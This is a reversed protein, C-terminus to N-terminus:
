QAIHTYGPLCHVVAVRAQMYIGYAHMHTALRATCLRWVPRCTHATHMCILLWGPLECSGWPDARVIDTKRFQDSQICPSCPSCVHTTTHIGHIAHNRSQICPSCAIRLLAHTQISAMSQMCTHNCICPSCAHTTTHMSQMHTHTAAHMSQMRTHSYAHVAHMHPQTCAMSQMCTHNYAHWPSCAHTATHMGHVAHMHPQICAMSQMRTCYHMHTQISAMSQMCTHSYAHRCAHTTTHMDAHSTHSYAHVAHVTTCTHNYAHVAHMHPQICPSCAHATTCTHKYAHVAHTHPQAHVAHMHLLAHTNTHMSQMCIHSNCPSYAHATTCTHKYAHVAHTQPQICPSCAHTATHMSQMCTHSYAHVAHATAPCAASGRSSIGAEEGQGQRAPM